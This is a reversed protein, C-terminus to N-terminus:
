ETEKALPNWIDTRFEDTLMIEQNERSEVCFPIFMCSTFYRNCSHTYQPSSYIDDKYKNITRHVDILWALWREFNEDTRTVREAVLGGISVDRPLPIQLGHVLCSNIDDGYGSPLILRSAAMYGTVQHSMHFSMAWAENIRAGTKNEHIEIEGTAVNNVIADIKGVFRFKGSDYEVCLDFPVEIGIFGSNLDVFPTWAEFNYNQLYMRCADEINQLTRRKDRPDDYYSSTHLAELSFNTRQNEPTEGNRFLDYMAAFRGTGFHTAGQERALDGADTNFLSAYRAAAFVEHCVSGTELALNRTEATATKCAVYRVMGWMPCTNIASGKTHDIWDLDQDEPTALRINIDVERRRELDNSHKV